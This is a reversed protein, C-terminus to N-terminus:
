VVGPFFFAIEQSISERSVDWGYDTYIVIQSDAFINAVQSSVLYDRNNVGQCLIEEMKQSGSVITDENKSERVCTLSM